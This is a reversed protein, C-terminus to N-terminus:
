EGRVAAILSKMGDADVLGPHIEKGAVFTPTGSIHLADALALNRKIAADIVPDQMDKKLREVDLDVRGAIEIASGETIAGPHALMADHFALYKGQARSVLAARAAFASGPGLIPFEKYVVRLGQDAKEAAALISAEKRCYPCDYDFFEVLITKGEPNAGVPASADNFIEDRKKELVATSENAQDAQRRAELGNVSEVIAEPHARVFALARADFDGAGRGPLIGSAFFLAFLSLLTSLVSLGLAIQALGSARGGPGGRDDKGEDTQPEAEMLLDREAPGM